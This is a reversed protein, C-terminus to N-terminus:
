RLLEKVKGVIREELTPAWPFPLTSWKMADGGEYGGEELVRKSPIYGMVDNSYGAVWLPTGALERKLRLSYDVVTEGALAVLTLSSGFRIVQLPFPYETPLAGERDIRDLMRRAHAALLKDKSQLREEFGARDPQPAFAIPVDAFAVSLPGAIPTATATLAAEVAMALARGHYQALELKGRPYPNQDGGCGQMYLAVAGPHAAEVYEQAYGAYDGCWQYFPLVTNHCAYGFLVARVEGKPGAVRLVPVSQDVPGEPYASNKYGSEVPLRRNM